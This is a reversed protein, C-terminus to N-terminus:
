APVVALAETEEVGKGDADDEEDEVDDAEDVEDVLVPNSEQDVPAFAPTIMPAIAPTPM